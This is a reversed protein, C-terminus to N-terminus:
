ENTKAESDVIKKSKKLKLALLVSGAIVLVTVGIGVYLWPSKFVESAKNNPNENTIDAGATIEWKAALSLNDPSTYVSGNEMKQDRAYWGLFEYGERIPEPLNEVVGNFSVTIPAIEDDTDYILNFSITYVNAAYNAIIEFEDDYDFTTEETIAKVESTSLDKYSWGILTYGTRTDKYTRLLSSLEDLEKGVIMSVNQTTQEMGNTVVINVVNTAHTWKAYIEKDANHVKSFDFEETLNVDAYWGVFVCNTKEPSAPKEIREGYNIIDSLIVNTSDRFVVNLKMVEWKAYLTFDVGPMTIFEYQTDFTNNDAYWGAFTHGELVPDDPTMLTSGYEKTISELSSGGNTNFSITYSNIAYIANVILDTTINSFDSDWGVFTHGIKLQMAPSTAGLGYKIEQNSLVTEGDKFTVAYKNKTAIYTACFDVDNIIREPILKDWGDFTYTYEQTREKTPNLVPPIIEEGYNITAGKLVITKNEDYFTYTYKNITQIYTAYFDIDDSVTAPIGKDWGSFRYTYQQTKAKTPNVPVIIETGYDVTAQSLIAIQDEDYFTYTYKNLTETYQAIFTISETIELPIEKDWGSFTNTHKQTSEKTPNTPTLINGGYRITQKNYEVGENIFTATYINRDYYVELVLSGDAAITDTVISIESNFSFGTYRNEYGTLTVVQGTQGSKTADTEYLSYGGNIIAQQYYKVKYATNANPAWSAYLKVTGTSGKNIKTITVGECGANNHWGTFTYGIKTPNILTITETEITYETTHGSISGGNLEYTITYTIPSYTANVTITDTINTFIKDWGAFTYGTRTPNAPATAASGYEIDQPVGIVTGDHDKFTVTYKNLTEEYTANFTINDTIESPITRDWGSFTYTYQQTRAKTPNTPTIINGRYRIDQKNYLASENLFTASYVNRNYYVGLVLSGDAAIVGTVTSNEANFSFGTYKGEYGELNVTDGTTGVNTGDIAVLTYNDNLINQQYYKITYKTNTNPVWKAYLSVNGTSNKIIKTIADGTLNANGYWGDFTYGIRTPTVLTITETEITYKTIHGSISGSNLEYTITYTIPSYTANVTQTDTINTFVKDWGSFTYGTRTPNAPATAASGYEIDQPVGIVTGDHDKFTVTYKNLTEEYTANFTINNSITDPVIPNWGNFTYTYQQTKTKTPNSPVVFNGGYRINQKDHETEGNMFKAIYVIRNYYVELVLSGNGAINGSLISGTATYMFGIYKNEYSTVTATTDTTGTLNDTSFLVYNDDLINQQYYKIEYATNTNAQWNATYTRSGYNGKTITVSTSPDGIIGTGSWGIFTYGTRAPNILNFTETEINYSEPNGPDTGNNLTYNISYSAPAWKAYVTINNAPM